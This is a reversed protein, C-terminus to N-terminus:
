RPGKSIRTGQNVITMQKCFLTRQKISDRTNM